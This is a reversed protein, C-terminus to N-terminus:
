FVNLKILEVSPKINKSYSSLIKNKVDISFFFILPLFISCIHLFDNNVVGLIEYYFLSQESWLDRKERKCQYHFVPLFYLLQFVATVTM